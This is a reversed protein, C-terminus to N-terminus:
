IKGNKNKWCKNCYKHHEIVRRKKCSLCLRRLPKVEERIKMPRTLNKRHFAGKPQKKNTM